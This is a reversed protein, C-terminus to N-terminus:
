LSCLSRRGQECPQPAVSLLSWAELAGNINKQIIDSPYKSLEHRIAEILSDKSVINTIKILFGLIVVNPIPKNLHKLALGTGDICYCSNLNLNSEVGKIDEINKEETNVIVVCDDKINNLVGTEIVSDDLIIMIDPHEIYGRLLIPHKDIRVFSVVPAGRRAPGYLPFSQAYNGDYLAATGLIKSTIVVGQGGRGHVEVEIM